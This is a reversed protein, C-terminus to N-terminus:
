DRLYKVKKFPTVIVITKAVTEVLSLGDKRYPHSKSLKVYHM